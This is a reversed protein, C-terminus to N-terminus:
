DSLFKQPAGAPALTEEGAAGGGGAVRVGAGRAGARLLGVAAGRAERPRRPKHQRFVPLLEIDSHQGVCISSSGKNFLEDQKGGAKGPPRGPVHGGGECLPRVQKWPLFSVQEADLQVAAIGNLVQLLKGQGAATQVRSGILPFLRAHPVGFRWETDLCEPPWESRLFELLESKRALLEERLEPTLRSKSRVRLRDGAPSVVIGQEELTSLLEQAAQKM